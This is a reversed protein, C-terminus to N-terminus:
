ELFEALIEERYVKEPMLEMLSEDTSPIHWTKGLKESLNRFVELPQPIKVETSFPIDVGGSPTGTVLWDSQSYLKWLRWLIQLVRVRNEISSTYLEDIIILNFFANKLETIDLTNYNRYTMNPMDGIIIDRVYSLMHYNPGLWLVDGYSRTVLGCLISKGIRRGGVVVRLHYPSNILQEQWDYPKIM